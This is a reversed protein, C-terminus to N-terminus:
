ELRGGSALRGKARELFASLGCSIRDDSETVESTRSILVRLDVDVWAAVKDLRAMDQPCPHSTLKVEIAWRRGGIEVLLDIEYGDSTRLFFPEPAAGLSELHGLVQEIVFGEWSSGVWPQDLLQKPDEVRLLAHLLGSDRWYLKPSKVFRKKLNAHYPMLRRILYAGELFETHRNVTKFDIGLSRAIASANWVQGHVAALM